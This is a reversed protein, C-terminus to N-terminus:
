VTKINLWIGGSPSLITSKKDIQLPIKTENCVSFEFKSLLMVMGVRAQMLGFRLGIGALFVYSLNLIHAVRRKPISLNCNRPGDGFSLFSTNDRKSM